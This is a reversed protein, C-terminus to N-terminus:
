PTDVPYGFHQACAALRAGGRYQWGQTTTVRTALRDLLSAYQPLDFNTHSSRLTMQPFGAFSSADAPNAPYVVTEFRQWAEDTLRMGGGDDFWILDMPGRAYTVWYVDTILVPADDTACATFSVARQYEDTGAIAQQYSVQWHQRFGPNAFSIYMGTGISLLVVWRIPRQARSLGVLAAATLFGLYEASYQIAVNARFGTPDIISFIALPIMPALAQPLLLFSLGFPLLLQWFFERRAPEAARDLWLESHFILNYAAEAPTSGLNGIFYNFNPTVQSPQIAQYIRLAAFGLILYALAWLWQRRFLKIVGFILWSPWYSVKTLTGVLLFGFARRDRDKFFFYSGLLLLGLAIGSTHYDAQLTLFLSPHLALTVPLLVQFPRLVPNKVAIAWTFIPASLIAILEFGLLKFPSSTLDFVRNIAPVIPDLYDQLYSIKPDLLWLSPPPAMPDGYSAQIWASLILYDRQIQQSVIAQYVYLVQIFCLGALTVLSAIAIFPNRTPRFFLWLADAVVAVLWASWNEAVAGFPLLWPYAALEVAALVQLWNELPRAVQLAM